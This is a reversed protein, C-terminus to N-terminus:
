TACLELFLAPISVNPTIFQSYIDKIPNSELKQKEEDKLTLSKAELFAVARLVDMLQEPTVKHYFHCTFANDVYEM